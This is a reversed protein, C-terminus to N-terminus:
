REKIQQLAMRVVSFIIAYDFYKTLRLRMM